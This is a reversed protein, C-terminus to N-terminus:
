DTKEDNMLELPKKLIDAGNDIIDDIAEVATANFSTHDILSSTLKDSYDDPLFSAFYM